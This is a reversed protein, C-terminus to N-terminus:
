LNTGHVHNYADLLDRMSITEIFDVEPVERIDNTEKVIDLGRASLRVLSFTEDFTEGDSLIVFM